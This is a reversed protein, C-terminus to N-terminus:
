PKPGQASPSACVALARNLWEALCDAMRACQAPTAILDNRIEVMVNLMNRPLAHHRLTHMVGDKPGYPANREIKFGSAVHLLADALRSDTDHLVGIEVSRPQGRYVPTFSHVTVLVSPGSRDNLTKTLLAEFPRYYREVRLQRDADTLAANGPVNTAESCKPMASEAAPPRNCDYILRSVTTYILAADLKKSLCQATELAGPDWAIHSDLADAELGLNDFERPIRASAHECVLVIPSRGSLNEVQPAFDGKGAHNQAHTVGMMQFSKKM